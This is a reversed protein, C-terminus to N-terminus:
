RENQAFLRELDYFIDHPLMGYQGMRAAAGDAAAGHLWVAACAADYAPIGQALLGALMGALVDGSGGRALGPNGTTNRTLRGDPAAILTRHGKLVLICQATRVYGMAVTERETNIEEASLGSLRAMEGLHPTLILPHGNQPQPLQTLGALANLGDADVVVPCNAAEILAPVLQRTQDNLGLGPGLLLATCGQLAETLTPLAAMTLTGEAGAPCALCCCEPLRPTIGWLVPEVTGLTVLGAGTRLAGEAALAAAGRYRASGAVLLLKGYSGKHSDPRRQPLLAFIQEATLTQAM